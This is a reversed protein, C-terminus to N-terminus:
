EIVKKGGNGEQFLTVLKSLFGMDLVIETIILIPTPKLGLRPPINQIGFM